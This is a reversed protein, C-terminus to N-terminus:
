KGGGVLWEKLLSPYVHKRNKREKVLDWESIIKVAENAVRIAEDVGADPIIEGTDRNAITACVMGSRFGYLNSLTFILSAEMEFNLVNVRKLHEILGRSAPPIYGGFGPREQGVYFSDSSASLGVHYKVGISEAAEILALVVEYSALAPYGLMVYLKSTGELRVAGTSIIIDGVEIWKHLSGTTGVRIFTDAGVRLLEEIAIATSPAGIGTSTSSILVGRYKGTYTTFERHSSVHWADDWFSAIRKVREPDGPLLVYKSVDGPKVRLHYQLGEESEPMEASKLKM